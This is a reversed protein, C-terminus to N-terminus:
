FNNIGNNQKVTIEFYCVDANHYHSPLAKSSALKEIGLFRFGNQTYHEILKKNNGCTDLRVYHLNKATAFDRAWRVIEGVFNQGRFDPNTAIRHIYLSPDEDRERWIEPDNYTIAWVCAIAGNIVMKFQKQESIEKTVMTRDFAPWINDLFKSRQFETALRYLRFIENIDELTSSAIMKESFHNESEKM